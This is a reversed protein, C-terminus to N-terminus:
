AAHHGSGGHTAIAGPKIAVCVDDNVDVLQGLPMGPWPAPSLGHQEWTRLIRFVHSLRRLGRRLSLPAPSVVRSAGKVM